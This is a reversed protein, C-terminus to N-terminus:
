NKGYKPLLLPLAQEAAADITAAIETDTPVANPDAPQDVSKVLRFWFELGENSIGLGSRRRGKVPTVKWKVLWAGKKTKLLFLGAVKGQISGQGGLAAAEARLPITLAKGRQAKIEGGDIKHILRLDGVAVIAETDTVSDVAVSNAVSNRGGHWFKQEPWGRKNGEAQRQEFHSVLLVAVAKAAAELLPKPRELKEAAAQLFPTATDSVTIMM